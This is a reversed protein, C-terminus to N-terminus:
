YKFIWGKKTYMKGPANKDEDYYKELEWRSEPVDSVGDEGNVLLNWYEDISNAGGPFRCSMGVIAIKDKAHEINMDGLSREKETTNVLSYIHESLESVTFYRFIDAVQINVNFESKLIEIFSPINISVIGYESFPVDYDLVKINFREEIYKM